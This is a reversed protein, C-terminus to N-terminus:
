VTIEWVLIIIIIRSNPFAARLNGSGPSSRWSLGSLIVKVRFEVFFPNILVILIDFYLEYHASYLLLIVAIKCPNVAYKSPSFIASTRFNQRSRSKASKRPLPAIEYVNAWWYM